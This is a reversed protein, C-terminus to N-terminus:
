SKAHGMACLFQDMSLKFDIEVKDRSVRVREVISALMMKKKENSAGDFVDRWVPVCERLTQVQTEEMAIEAMQGQIQEIRHEIQSLVDKTEDILETLM